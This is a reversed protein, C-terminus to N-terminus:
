ITEITQSTAFTITKYGGQYYADTAINLTESLRGDGVAGSLGTSFVTSTTDIWTKGDFSYKMSPSDQAFIIWLHGTWLIGRPTGSFSMITSIWNIGDTSYAMQYNVGLKYGVVAFVNGNWALSTGRTLGSTAKSWILGDYSYAIPSPDEGSAVWITGNWVISCCVQNFPTNPNRTWNLGDYSYALTNTGYGGALWITGNTALTLVASTFISNGLGTWNYGDKSYAMTNTGFGGSVWLNNYYLLSECHDFIKNGLGTWNLGDYSYALSNVTGKGCALWLSGNYVANSGWIDFISTGLGTWTIGDKSYALTNNGLGCAVHPQYLQISTSEGSWDSGIGVGDSDITAKGLATWHIGDSSYALTSTKSSSTALTAAIWLSGNWNVYMGDGCSSPLSSSYWIKGDYSYGANVGVVVWMKDNWGIGHSSPVSTGLGIWIAGDYSYAMNNIGSGSALFMTRNWAVTLGESFISTGIGTWTTGNDSYAISNTGKGVAVWRKGNSVIGICYDTFTTKEIPTWTKGDTSSALTCTGAGGGAIWMTGNWAVWNGFTFLANYATNANWNIGDYSYAFMTNGAGLAVWITGNWMICYCSGNFITNGLGKWTIGDYSYALTNTGRGGAISLRPKITISNEYAANNTLGYCINSFISTGLGTWHIGDYSYSLTNGGTGGAIFMEGNWSISFPYNTFISNGVGNWLIGDYSYVISNTCGPGGGVAVWLNGNWAVGFVGNGHNIITTSNPVPFWNQGDYSYAIYTSGSGCAIWMTGNWKVANGYNFLTRGLGTWNKGDYSYALTDSGNGTAVFMKGNWDIGTVWTNIYPTGLGTWNQGDYSYALTNGGSGGAVWLQGNWAFCYSGTTFNSTGLGTWNQGDYSYALTNAGGADGGAVWIRGNWAVGRGQAFIISGLGNWNQGDSSYAITNTGNGLAVWLNKKPAGFTLTTNGVNSVGELTVQINKKYLPTKYLLSLSRSSTTPRITLSQISTKDILEILDTERSFYNTGIRTVTLVVQIPNATSHLNSTITTTGPNVLTITTGSVTAVTPTSSIFSTGAIPVLLTGVEINVSLTTVTNITYLENIETQSLPYNYMKFEDISGKFSPDVWNSKGIYNSSRVLISPHNPSVGISEYNTYNSSTITEKVVRNIYLTWTAGDASITWVLHRWVNDNCNPLVNHLQCVGSTGYVSFVLNDNLIAIIINSSAPGNGFDFLRGWNGTGDSKFWMAFTMGTLNMGFSPYVIWNPNETTSVLLSTESILPSRYYYATVSGNMDLLGYYSALYNEVKKKDSDSLVRDYILLDLMQGNGSESRGSSAQNIGLTPLYSDSPAGGGRLNGNTYYTTSTDTGIFFNTGFLDSIPTIFTNFHYAVGTAGSNYNGTLWNISIGQIIRARETPLHRTISFLTYNPMQDTNGFNINATTDFQVASMTRYKKDGSHLVLSVNGSVTIHQSLGSDKWVKTTPNFDSAKFRRHLGSVPNSANLYAENLLMNSYFKGSRYYFDPIGTSM